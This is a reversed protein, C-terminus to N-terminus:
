RFQTSPTLTWLSWLRYKENTAKKEHDRISEKLIENESFEATLIDKM